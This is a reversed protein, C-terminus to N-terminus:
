EKKSYEKLHHLSSGIAKPIKVVLKLSLTEKIISLFPRLLSRRNLFLAYFFGKLARFGGRAYAIQRVGLKEFHKGIEVDHLSQKYDRQLSEYYLVGGPHRRYVSLNDSMGRIKGEEACSMFLVIDHFLFNPNHIAEQFRESQVLSTRFVTSATPIIWNDYIEVGSYARDEIPAFGREENSGEWKERANHFCLTYEPNTELFDVQKQLKHPDTWYDDGECLAIYKGKVRSFQYTLWISVGQSYQNEKQYIPKILHPYRDAYRQILRASEDTSADDHILVEFPFNTEQMVFGKLADEIFPEHNFVDCVVSVLPCPKSM